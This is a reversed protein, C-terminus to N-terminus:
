GELGADELVEVVVHTGHAWYGAELEMEALEPWAVHKSVLTEANVIGLRLAQLADRVDRQEFGTVGVIRLEKRQVLTGPVAFLFSSPFPAGLILTGRAALSQLAEPAFSPDGTLIVAAEVGAGGTEDLVAARVAEEPARVVRTAGSWSARQRLTASGDVAIVARVGRHRAMRILAQGALGLGLVLLASKDTVRTERLVRAAMATAPILTADDTPLEMPLKMVGGSAAAAAPVLIYEALGEFPGGGASLVPPLLLARDLANWGSVEDGVAAIEAVPLAPPTRGVNLTLDLDSPALGACMLRFLLDGPGVEPLPSEVLRFRGGRDLVARQMVAPLPYLERM